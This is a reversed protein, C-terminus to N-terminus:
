LRLKWNILYRIIRLVDLMTMGKNMDHYITRICVTSFPLRYKATRAAIELEVAYDVSDWALYRYAKRTFAKFGSPIDPIYKGFFIAVLYSAVRNFFARLWPMDKDVQRIGFVVDNGKKFEQAFLPLEAPDHQDDGDMVIVSEAKLNKFAFDCGTKLAAGKGLNVKHTLTYAAWQEAQASTQDKSGDDVVIVRPTVSIVKKLVQAIYTAENYAPIVVWLTAPLVLQPQKM